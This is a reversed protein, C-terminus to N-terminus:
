REQVQLIRYFERYQLKFIKFVATEERKPVNLKKVKKVGNRFYSKVVLGFCSGAM